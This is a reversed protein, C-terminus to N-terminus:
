RHVVTKSVFWPLADPCPTAATRTGRAPSLARWGSLHRPRTSSEAYRPGRTTVSRRGRAEAPGVGRKRSPESVGGTRVLRLLERVWVPDREGDYIWRTGLVSHEATAVLGRGDALPAGRYTLPVQYLLDGDAVLHTEVGVEGGPDEFRFYGVPRLSPVGVGRYWSQRAVWAPLFDQFRPMLTAGVHITGM